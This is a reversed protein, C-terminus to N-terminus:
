AEQQTGNGQVREDRVPQQNNHRFAFIQDPDLVEQLLVLGQLRLDNAVLGADLSDGLFSFGHHLFTNARGRLEEGPM